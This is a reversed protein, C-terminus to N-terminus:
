FSLKLTLIVSRPNSSFVQSWQQFATSQPDFSTRVLLGAPTGSGYSTFAVDDLYGGTYQPHNFLNSARISLEAKARETFNFHKAMTLDLDDIPNLNISNRGANPLTGEPASVYRANPNDALYAITDGAANALPTVGTGLASNGSPNIFVRDSASDANLNSDVESQPTILTGTQYIFIPAIEWNGALNKLFWNSHKFYPMEYLLEFSLRQRHDLASSAREDTMNQSDQPRRPTFVTSGVTATSDDIDHSWTYASMFQLSRAFRRTMQIALGNYSSNGIPMFATIPTEPNNFGAAAYAPVIFGGNNYSAQLTGLTNTLSNLSAQSPVSFYVPLANQSNVVPQRDLQIQVPLFLGRNGLYRVDFTYDKAFVHQIGFNWQISEPRKQNPIFGQTEYRAEAATLAGVQINPLIGGNALFGSKDLGTVDVTTGFQPPSGLSELNDDVVDYNIGFGARISTLGANGPSYAVGIRPMLATDQPKPESFSILGPVSALANIDQQRASYPVTQYEYRLGLNLTLHPTIKWTDNGYIGLLVQDGYYVVNGLGRQANGDPYNDFLYDSLFYWEYDGRSRQTYSSPSISKWGDFGFKFSHGGHVWAM